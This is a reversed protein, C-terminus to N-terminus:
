KEVVKKVEEHVVKKKVKKEKVERMLILQENTM